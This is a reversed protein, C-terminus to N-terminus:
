VCAIIICPWPKMCLNTDEAYFRNFGFAMNFIVFYYKVVNVVLDYSRWHACMFGQYEEICLYHM